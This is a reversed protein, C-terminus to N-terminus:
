ILRCSDYTIGKSGSFGLRGEALKILGLIIVFALAPM